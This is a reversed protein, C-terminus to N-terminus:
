SDEPSPQVQVVVSAAHCQQLDEAELLAWHSLNIVLTFSIFFHQSAASDFLFHFSSLSNIFRSFSVLTCSFFFSCPSFSYSFSFTDIGPHYISLRTLSCEYFLSPLTFAHAHMDILQTVSFLLIYSGHVNLQAGQSWYYRWTLIAIFIRITIYRQYWTYMLQQVRTASYLLLDMYQNHHTSFPERASCKAACLLVCSSKQAWWTWYLTATMSKQIYKVKSEQTCELTVNNCPQCQYINATPTYSHAIVVHVSFQTLQM